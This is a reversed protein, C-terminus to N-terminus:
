LALVFEHVERYRDLLLPTIRCGPCAWHFLIEQDEPRFNNPEYPRRVFARVCCPPYGFLYGELVQTSSSKDVPKDAFACEYLRLYGELGAFVTEVVSSGTKVTRSNQRCKLGAGVLQDVAEREVPKEWRSLPKLGAVTLAALYALDFDEEKLRAVCRIVEVSELELTQSEQV